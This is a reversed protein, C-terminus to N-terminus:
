LMGRNRYLKSSVMSPPSIRGRPMSLVTVESASCAPLRTSIVSSRAAPVGCSNVHLAVSVAACCAATASSVRCSRPISTAGGPDPLVTMAQATMAARWVEASIRTSRLASASWHRLRM